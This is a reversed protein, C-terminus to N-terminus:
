LLFCLLTFDLVDDLSCIRLFLIIVELRKLIPPAVGTVNKKIYAIFHCEWSILLVGGGGLGSAPDDQSCGSIFKEGPKCRM